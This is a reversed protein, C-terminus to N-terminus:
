GSPRVDLDHVLRPEVLRAGHWDRVRPEGEIRWGHSLYFGIAAENREETHLWAQMQGAERLADLAVDLLAGAAGRGQGRPDTYLRSIEGTDEEWAVFALVGEGDVAVADAPHTADATAEEIRDAGLFPGWAALGARRLVESVAEADAPGALRIWFGEGM